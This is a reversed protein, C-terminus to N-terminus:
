KNLLLVSSLICINQQRHTKLKPIRLRIGSPLLEYHQALVHSNDRVISLAKKKAHREYLVNVSVQREGVINSCVNVVRNLVNKSQVSLKGYCCVLSFSLLSVIFCRYLGQLVKVDVQLSRLKQVCVCFDLSAVTNITFSLNGDLVTGLYNHESVRGVKVGDIFLDPATSPNKNFDILM